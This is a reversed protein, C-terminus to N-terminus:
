HLDHGADDWRSSDDLQFTLAVGGVLSRWVKQGRRDVREDTCKLIPLLLGRRSERALQHALASSVKARRQGLQDSSELL